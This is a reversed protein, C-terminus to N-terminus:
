KEDVPFVKPARYQIANLSIIRDGLQYHSVKGDAGFVAEVKNHLDVDCEDAEFDFTCGNDLQISIKAKM